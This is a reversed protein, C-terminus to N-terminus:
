GKKKRNLDVSAFLDGKNQIYPCSRQKQIPSLNGVTVFHGYEAKFAGFVADTVWETLRAVRSGNRCLEDDDLDDVVLCDPRRVGDSHRRLRFYERKVENSQV